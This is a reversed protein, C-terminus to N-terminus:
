LLRGESWKRGSCATVNCNQFASVMEFFASELAGVVLSQETINESRLLQNTATSPDVKAEWEDLAYRKIVLLDRVRSLKEQHLLVVLVIHVIDITISSSVLNQNTFDDIHLKVHSM